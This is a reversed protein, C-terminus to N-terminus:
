EQECLQTFDILNKNISKSFDVYLTMILIFCSEIWKYIPHEHTIVRFISTTKTLENLESYSGQVGDWNPHVFECLSEYFKKIDPYKKDLKDILTLINFPEPETDNKAGLTLRTLKDDINEPLMNTKLSIEVENKVCFTIATNEFQSRILSLAPIIHNKKLLLDTSECFDIMRCNMIEVFSHVKFPINSKTSYQFHYIKDTKLSQLEYIKSKIVLKDIM